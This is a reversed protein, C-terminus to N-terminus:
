EEMIGTDMSVTPMISTAAAQSIAPFEEEMHMLGHSDHPLQLPSVMLDKDVPSIAENPDAMNNSQSVGDGGQQLHVNGARDGEQQPDDDGLSSRRDVIADRARNPCGLQRHGIHRCYTCFIPPLKEYQFYVMRISGYEDVPNVGLPRPSSATITNRVRFGISTTPFGFQPSLEAVPMLDQLLELIEEEFWYSFPLDVFSFWISFTLLPLEQPPTGPIYDNLLLVQGYISWSQNQIVYDRDAQNLTFNFVFVEATM